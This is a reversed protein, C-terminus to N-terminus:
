RRRAEVEEIARATIGLGVAAVGVALFAFFPFTPLPGAGARGATM